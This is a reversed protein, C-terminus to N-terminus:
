KDICYKSLTLNNGLLPTMLYQIVFVDCMYFFHLNKWKGIQCLYVPKNENRYRVYYLYHCPGMFENWASFCM